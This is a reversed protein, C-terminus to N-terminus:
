KIEELIQLMEAEPVGATSTVSYTRGDATWTNMFLLLEGEAGETGQATVTADGLSLQKSTTYEGGYVGSIDEDGNAIRVRIENDQGQYILM